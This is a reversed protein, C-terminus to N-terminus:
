VTAMQKAKELEEQLVLIKGTLAQIEGKDVPPRQQNEGVKGILQRSMEPLSYDTFENIAKLISINESGLSKLLFPHSIVQSAQPRKSADKELCFAVFGNLDQSHSKPNDLAPPPNSVIANIARM